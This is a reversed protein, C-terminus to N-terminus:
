VAKVYPTVTGTFGGILDELEEDSIERLSVGEFQPQASKMHPTGKVDM